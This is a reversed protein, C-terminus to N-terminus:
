EGVYTGVHGAHLQISNSLSAISWTALFDLKQDATFDIGSGVAPAANYPLLHRGAGGATPAPSGIVAHSEWHCGKPMFTTSTGTGSAVCLLEGRLTWHTNTQANVNLTMSGSALIDTTGLRLALALTGPATVLTSIRGSFCFEIVKGPAFYGIGFACAKGSAPLLSTQTLSNSLAPGSERVELWRNLFGQAPM